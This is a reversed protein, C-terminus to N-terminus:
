FFTLYLEGRAQRLILLAVQCRSAFACWLASDDRWQQGVQKQVIGQVDPHRPVIGFYRELPIRVIGDQM